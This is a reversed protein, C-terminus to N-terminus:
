AHFVAEPDAVDRPLHRSGEAERVVFSFKDLRRAEQVVHAVTREGVGEFMDQAAFEGHIVHVEGLPDDGAVVVVHGRLIPAGERVDLSDVLDELRVAYIGLGDGCQNAPRRFLARTQEHRPTPPFRIAVQRLDDVARHVRILDVVEHPVRVVGARGM